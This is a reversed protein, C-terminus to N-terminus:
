TISRIQAWLLKCQQTLKKTNFPLVQIQVKMHFTYGILNASYKVLGSQLRQVVDEYM